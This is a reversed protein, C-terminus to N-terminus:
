RIACYTADIIARRGHVAHEVLWGRRWAHQWKRRTVHAVELLEPRRAVSAPLVVAIIPDIFVPTLVM